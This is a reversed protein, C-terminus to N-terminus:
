REFSDLVSKVFDKWARKDGAGKSRRQGAFVRERLARGTDDPDRHHSKAWSGVMVDVEKSLIFNVFPDRLGSIDDTSVALAGAIQSATTADLERAVERELKVLEKINSVPGAAPLLEALQKVSLGARSRASHVAEGSVVVTSPVMTVPGVLGLSRAIPDDEIPIEEVHTNWAADVLEIMAKVQQRTSPDLAELDPAVCEGDLSRLYQDLAQSYVSPQEAPRSETM